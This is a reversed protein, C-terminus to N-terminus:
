YASRRWGRKSPLQRAEHRWSREWALVKSLKTEPKRSQLLPTMWGSTPLKRKIGCNFNIRITASLVCVYHLFLTFIPWKIISRSFRGTIKKIYLKQVSYIKHQISCYTSAFNKGQPMLYFWVLKRVVEDRLNFTRSSRAFEWQFFVFCRLIRVLKTGFLQVSSRILISNM